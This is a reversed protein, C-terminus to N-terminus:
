RVASRRTTNAITADVFELAKDYSRRQLFHRLQPHADAPLRQEIADLRGSVEALRAIHQEPSRRSEEDSIISLRERLTTALENLTDM